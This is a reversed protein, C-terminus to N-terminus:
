PREPLHVNMKAAIAVVCDGLWTSQGRYESLQEKLEAVKDELAAIQNNKRNCENIHAVLVERRARLEALKEKIGALMAEVCIKFIWGFGVLMMAKTITFTLDGM